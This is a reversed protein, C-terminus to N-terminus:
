DVLLKRIENTNEGSIKVTYIGKSITVLNVQVKEENSSITKVLQGNMNYINISIMSSNGPLYVTLKDKAPNPALVINANDTFYVSKIESCTFRGDVDITKLRYYNIGKAPHLDTTHYNRQGTSNGAADVNAVGTWLNQDASREVIFSKSNLEQETFWNIEVIAHQKKVDFGSLKVALPEQILKLTFVSSRSSEVGTLPNSVLPDPNFDTIGSFKGRVMINRYADIAISPAFCTGPGTLTFLKKFSGDAGYKVIVGDTVEPDLYSAPNTGDFYVPDVVGGSVYIENTVQDIVVGPLDDGQFPQTDHAKKTWQFEGDANWKAVFMNQFQSGTLNFTGPGPDFDVTNAFVGTFVINDNNDTDIGLIYSAQYNSWQIDLNLDYKSLYSYFYGGNPGFGETSVIVAGNKVIMAYAGWGYGALVGTMRIANIYNGDQDLKLLFPAILNNTYPDVQVVAPGPDVDIPKRFSGSLYVNGNDDTGIGRIGELGYDATAEGITKAWIFAGSSSYKCIFANGYVPDATYTVSGPGPDFDVTRKFTGVVYVNGSNDVHINVGWDSATGGFSVAWAFSGDNNLKTVFVDTSDPSILNYIGPGPDFDLTGTFRGTAYVNGAQDTAMPADVDDWEIYNMDISNAWAYTQSYLKNNLACLLLVFLFYHLLCLSFSGSKRKM